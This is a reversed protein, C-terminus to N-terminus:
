RATYAAAAFTVASATEKERMIDRCSLTMTAPPLIEAARRAVDNTQVRAEPAEVPEEVELEEVLEPASELEETEEALDLNEEVLAAQAVKKSKDKLKKDKKDKKAM